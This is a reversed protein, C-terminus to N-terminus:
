KQNRVRFLHFKDSLNKGLVKRALTKGLHVTAETISMNFLKQQVAQVVVDSSPHLSTKQSSEVNFRTWSSLALRLALTPAVLERTAGEELPATFIQKWKVKLDIGNFHKANEYAGQSLSSYKEQNTLVEVIADAAQKVAHQEVTIIGKGEQVLALYPLDYMVIPLGFAQTELLSLAFGEYASTFLFIDSQQYFPEVTLQFGTLTIHDAIKRKKAYNIIQKIM